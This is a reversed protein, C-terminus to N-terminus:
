RRASRRRRARAVAQRVARRAQPRDARSYNSRRRPRAVPIQRAALNPEDMFLNSFDLAVDYNGANMRRSISRPRSSSTSSRRRRDPAVPRDPLHRGAHLADRRQPEHLKFKLNPVGAEQSCSRPRRARRTSTRPSAPCSSWSPRRRRSRRLRAPDRRRGLARTSIKSLAQAAAGATSRWRCRRRVRVDDFPKKETNFCSWCIAAGLAVGRRPDQRGDGAGAPRPRGAFAASSPWCRDARCARQADRRGAAHLRGPLRRSLAQGERLLRRIAQRGSVHAARSTSSSPSRAPATSRPRPRLESRGRAKARQLHLELALRLARADLREAGEAQVRRHAADPTEITGIDAYTAKRISVVGQPPNRMRDYTAKIDASTLTTGDHFKVGQQLKFTYTMLDPAVTWSQPSTARSRPSSPRPRLAAAHLLAAGVFHLTAYTDSGHCDYNPPEASIAFKCRAAAAQATQADADRRRRWARLRLATMSVLTAHDHECRREREM